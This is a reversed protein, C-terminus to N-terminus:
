KVVEWDTVERKVARFKYQGTRGVRNCYEAAKKADEANKLIMWSYNCETWSLSCKHRMQVGYEIKMKPMIM